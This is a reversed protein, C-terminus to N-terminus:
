PSAGPAARVESASAYALARAVAGVADRVSTSVDMPQRACGAVFVRPGLGEPRVFGHDDRPLAAWAPSASRTAVMGTALVVLDVPEAGRRGTSVDEFEVIPADGSADVRAVKGPVFRVKPDDATAQLFREANGTARRDIYHILIEVDPDAARLYRAQKASVLCCVGSCHELHAQDRSGACQVFSVRKPPQGNSPRQIRGRTPGHPSALRELMLSTIVDAHRGFALEHLRTADYPEWGTAWIVADVELDFQRPAMGLDIAGQPCEDVCRGCDAGPCAEPDVVFRAPHAAPHPLYIARTSGLGLDFASRREVPCVKACAGCASCHDHVRRPRELLTVRVSRRQVTLERPETLTFCKLQGSSRLRRLNLELGCLPPCLKPFYQHLQAVRGGLHAEREVLVVGFGSEVAEVAASVGTVGGGIVLLRGRRGRPAEDLEGAIM